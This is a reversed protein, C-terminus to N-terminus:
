MGGHGDCRDMLHCVKRISLVGGNSSGRKRVVTM